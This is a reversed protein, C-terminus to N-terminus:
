TLTLFDTATKMRELFRKILYNLLSYKLNRGVKVLEADPSPLQSSSKISNEVAICASLTGSNTGLTYEEDDHLLTDSRTERVPESESIALIDGCSFSRQLGLIRSIAGCSQILDNGELYLM